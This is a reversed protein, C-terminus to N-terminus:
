PPCPRWRCRHSAAPRKTRRSSCPRPRDSQASDRKAPPKWSAPWRPRAYAPRGPPRCQRRHASLWGRTRVPRALPASPARVARSIPEGAGLVLDVGSGGPGGPNVFLTGIRGAPDTAPLRALALDITAGASRDYDLPVAVQACQATENEVCPQWDIVPPRLGPVGAVSAPASGAVSEQASGAVSEQASGAVQAASAAPVGVTAWVLAPIVLVSIVLVPILRVAPGQGHRVRSRM